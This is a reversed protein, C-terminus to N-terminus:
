PRFNEEWRVIGKVACGTRVATIHYEAPLTLTFVRCGDFGRIEREGARDPYFGVNDFRSARRAEPLKEPEDTTLHCIIETESPIEGGIVWYLTMGDQYIRVDHEENVAKLVASEPLFSPQEPLNGPVYELSGGHLYVRTGIPKRGKFAVLIEYKRAKADAKAAGFPEAAAHAADLQATEARAAFSDGRVETGASIETGAEDKLLITYAPMKGEYVRCSGSLLVGGDDWVPDSVRFAFQREYVTGVSDDVIKANLLCGSIGVLVLAFGLWAADSLRIGGLKRFLLYIGAGAAGGLTNTFLDDVDFVGRCSIYQAAEVALSSALCLLVPLLVKRRCLVALLYGLPVFLLVNLVINFGTNLDGGFWEAFSWFLVLQIQRGLGSERYIVTIFLICALYALLPILAKHNIPSTTRAAM